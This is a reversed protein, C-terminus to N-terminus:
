NKQMNTYKVHAEKIIEKNTRKNVRKMNDNWLLVILQSIPNKSDYGLMLIIEAVNLEDIERTDYTDKKNKSRSERLVKDNVKALDGFGLADGFVETLYENIVRNSDGSSKMREATKNKANIKVKRNYEKRDDKALKNSDKHVYCLGNTNATKNLCQRGSVLNKKCQTHTGSDKEKKNKAREDDNKNPMKAQPKRAGGTASTSKSEKGKNGGEDGPPTEDDYDQDYDGAMDHEVYMDHIYISAQIDGDPVPDYGFRELIQNYTLFDLAVQASNVETAFIEAKRQKDMKQVVEWSIDWGGELDPRLKEHLEINQNEFEEQMTSIMAYYNDTDQQTGSVQGRQTGDIRSMAYGSGSAVEKTMADNTMNLDFSAAVGPINSVETDKDTFMVNYAAPNGYAKQWKSRDELEFDKIAVHIMSIGRADMATAFGREINAMWKLQDYIVYTDPIGQYTNGFPDPKNVYLVCDKPKIILQKYIRGVMVIPNFYAILGADNFQIYEDQLPIVRYQVRIHKWRGHGNFPMKIALSKGMTKALQVAKTHVHKLKYESALKKLAHELEVDVHNKHNEPEVYDWGSRFADLVAIHTIFHGKPSKIAAAWRRAPRYIYEIPQMSHYNQDNEWVKVEADWFPVGTSDGTSMVAGKVKKIGNITADWMGDITEVMDIVALAM